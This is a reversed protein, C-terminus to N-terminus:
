KEEAVLGSDGVVPLGLAERLRAAENEGLRRVVAHRARSQPYRVVAIGGDPYEFYFQGAPLGTNGLMFPRGAALEDRRLTAVAQAARQQLATIEAPTM